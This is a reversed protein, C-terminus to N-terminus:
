PNAETKKRELGQEVAREVSSPTSASEIKGLTTADQFLQALQQLAIVQSEKEGIALLFVAKVEISNEPSGMMQFSIPNRAIGIAMMSHIVHEAETHPLAINMGKTPLGTPFQGERRLVADVFGEDVYGKEYLLQGLERIAQEQNDVDWDTLILEKNLLKSLDM